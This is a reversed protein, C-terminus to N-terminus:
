PLNGMFKVSWGKNIYFRKRNNRHRKGTNGSLGIDIIVPPLKDKHKRQVRGCIQELLPENNIPTGLIAASLPDISVGESFISQTGWLVQAGSNPDAILDMIEQRNETIKGTIMLSFEETEKHCYELLDTRDSLALVKHGAEAYLNALFLM